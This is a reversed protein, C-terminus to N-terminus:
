RVAAASRKRLSELRKCIARVADRTLGLENGIRKYGLGQARLERIRGDRAAREPSTGDRRHRQPEPAPAPIALQERPLTLRARLTEIETRAILAVMKPLRLHTPGIQTRRLANAACRWVPATGWHGFEVPAGCDPSQCVVM